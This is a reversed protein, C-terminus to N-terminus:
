NQRVANMAEDLTLDPDLQLKESLQSNRIGVVIRDRILEDHLSGYLCHEALCYLSTIFSDCTEDPGQVRRNFKARKFIVNRRKLFHKELEEKVVDYKGRQAETLYVLTIPDILYHEGGALVSTPIRGHLFFFLPYHKM